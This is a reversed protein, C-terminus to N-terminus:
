LQAHHSDRRSTQAVVERGISENEGARLHSSREIQMIKRITDNTGGELSAANM